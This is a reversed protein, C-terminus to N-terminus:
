KQAILFYYLATFEFKKFFILKKSPLNRLIECRHSKGFSKDDEEKCHLYKLSPQPNISVVTQSTEDQNGHDIRKMVGHHLRFGSIQKDEDPLREM